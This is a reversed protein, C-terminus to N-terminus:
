RLPRYSVLYSVEDDVADKLRDVDIRLPVGTTPDYAVKVTASDAQRDAIERFLADVSSPLQRPTPLPTGSPRGPPAEVATRVAVGGRVTVHLVGTEVCFCSRGVVLDYDRAGAAAWAARASALGDVPAAPASPASPATPPAAPATGCAALLAVALAAIVTRTATATRM